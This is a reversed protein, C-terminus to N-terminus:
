KVAPLFLGHVPELGAPLRTEVAQLYDSPLVIGPGLKERAGRVVVSWRRPLVPPPRGVGKLQAELQPKGQDPAISGAVLLLLHVGPPDDPDVNAWLDERTPYRVATQKGESHVPVTVAGGTDIWVLYWYAPRNLQGVLRFQDVPRLPPALPELDQEAGKSVLDRYLPTNDGKRLVYLRLNELSLPSAEADGEGGRPWWWVAVLALLGVVGM